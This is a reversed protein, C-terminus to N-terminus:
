CIGGISIHIYMTYIYKYIYIYIYICIYTYVYVDVCTYIYMWVDMWGYTYVYMCVYMCLRVELEAVIEKQRIVSGPLKAVPFAKAESVLALVEEIEPRNVIGELTYKSELMPLKCGQILVDDWITAQSVLELLAQAKLPSISDEPEAFARIHEKRVICLRGEKTMVGFGNNNNM